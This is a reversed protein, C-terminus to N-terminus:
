LGTIVLRSEGLGCPPICCANVSAPLAKGGGFSRKWRTRLSGAPGKAKSEEVAVIREPNLIDVLMALGGALIGGPAALVEEPTVCGMEAAEAM